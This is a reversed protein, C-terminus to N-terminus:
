PELPAFQLVRRRDESLDCAWTKPASFLGNAGRVEITLLHRRAPMPQGAFTIVTPRASGPFRLRVGNPDMAGVLKQAEDACLESGQAGSAADAVPDAYLRKPEAAPACPTQSYTNGCRYLTQGLALPAALSLLLTIPARMRSANAVSRSTM